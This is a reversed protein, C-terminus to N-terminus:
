PLLERRLVKGVANRPIDARFHIDRPQEFRSVRHRLFERLKEEDIDSDTRAVVFAALRQGYDPDPVGVVAYDSLEPCQGLANEVASPYVNEGGSVIMDDGRGVIFLRGREDLYGLDDTCTMNAVVKKAGRGGTYGDFALDGDVFVRGISRAPVPRDDDDLIRITGGAMPLGVTGPADRLDAPTAFTGLGVESSGYGNYLIHGYEASFRMALGPDLHSGGSIVARLSPVPNRARVRASLDLIRGLMTPVVALAEARHLSAQALAREADFCRQALVTGGLTVGIMLMSFGFAHFMPVAVMIPSGTRLRTRDLISMTVGAAARAHPARPVGKPTGTTGSTLVVLRGPPVGQPPRRPRDDLTADVVAVTKDAAHLLAILDPDCVVTRIAHQSLAVALAEASLETNLLVVDAGVSFAAFAAAAFGRGNACLIGVSRGPGLRHDDALTAALSGALAQLERYSVAGDDDILAARQPWRAATIALLTAPNAGGARAARVVQRLRPLTMPAALGSRLMVRGATIALNTTM